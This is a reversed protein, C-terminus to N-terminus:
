LFDAYDIKPFLFTSQGLYVVRSDYNGGISTYITGDSLNLIRPTNIKNKFEINRDNIVMYLTSGHIDSLIVGGVPVHKINVIDGPEM